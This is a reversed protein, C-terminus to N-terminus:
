VINGEADILTFGEWLGHMVAPICEQNNRHRLPRVVIKLANRNLRAGWFSFTSNACINHRCLSMLYMDYFSNDGTNWDVITTDKGTYHERAYGYDDTFIYFHANESKKKIEHIAAAYYKDTCIGEFIAANEQQLYDGRRIHISVANGAQIQQEIAANQEMSSKPFKLKEQLVPLIDHYYKECAWYGELYMEKFEFIEPLYMRGDEQYWNLQNKLFKRRLKGALSGENGIFAEREAETCVEYDLGDYLDLELKRKTFVNKNNRYWGVDLKAPIGLSRFKEYIAYQQLQNGLGGMVKVIVM